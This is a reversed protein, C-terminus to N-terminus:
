TIFINRIFLVKFIAVTTFSKEIVNLSNPYDTTGVPGFGSLSGVPLVTGATQDALSVEQINFINALAPSNRQGAVVVDKSM